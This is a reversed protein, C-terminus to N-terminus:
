MVMCFELMGLQMASAWRLLLLFWPFLPHGILFLAMGGMVLYKIWLVISVLIFFLTIGNAGQAIRATLTCYAAWLLTGLFALGYSLPKQQINNAM